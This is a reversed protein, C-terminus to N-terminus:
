ISNRSTDIDAEPLTWVIRKDKGFGSSDNEIQLENRARYLTAHSCGLRECLDKISSVELRDSDGFLELLSDCIDDLKASSKKRVDRHSNIVDDAKLDSFGEFAIGGYQPAIEFLVSRGHAALSSKEHCMIKGGPKDPNNALVLMSRAVAPIDVSGLSRLLASNQASKSNHMIFIVACKYKEALHAIRGLVPRVENARHMDVGAGLYAQLPDFIMLKPSLEKMIEEIHESSLSLSEREENFVFINEFKPRMPELRPKITDAVGDEATQYVAVAPERYASEGYFPRGTSVQSTLYLALFTKGTGPDATMLTIKGLPIYPYWLWETQTSEIDSLRIYKQPKSDAKPALKETIATLAGLKMKVTEAVTKGQMPEQREYIDTIDGKPKLDEWEFSLDPLRVSKAFPLIEAAIHQSLAKGAEDNDALVVVDAGKFLANYAKNWKNELRGSGAGHPSCVAFLGLKDTLTDVDKEGEAIYVPENAKIAAAINAQKYLPPKIKDGNEDCPLGKEWKDGVKHYWCFSKEYGQKKDSWFYFRSKKLSDSYFYDAGEPAKRQPKYPEYFLDRVTIGLAASVASGDAGCVPCNMVIGVKGAKVDLSPKHDNHCPCLAIYHDSGSARKVGTLRQLIDIMQM